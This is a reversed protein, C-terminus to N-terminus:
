IRSSWPLSANEFHWESAAPLRVDSERIFHSSESVRWLSIPPVVDVIEIWLGSLASELKYRLFRM